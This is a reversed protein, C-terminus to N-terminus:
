STLPSRVQLTVEEGVFPLATLLLWRRGKRDILYYAPFAFLVNMLGIGWSLFLPRLNNSPDDVSDPSNQFTKDESSNCFVNSSYLALVNV